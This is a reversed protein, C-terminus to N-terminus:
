WGLETYFINKQYNEIAQKIYGITNEPLNNLPFFRLDSCKDPETNAPQGVWHKAYFFFDMRIDEEKRHMIQVIQIDQKTLVIGIEEKTERIIGTTLSENDDLHGAPLGYNGDEYGTNQRKLLLINDDKILFLYISAIM